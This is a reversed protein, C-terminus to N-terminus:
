YHSISNLFNSRIFEPDKQHSQQDQNMIPYIKGSFYLFSFYSFSLPPRSILFFPSISPNQFLLAYFSCFISFFPSLFFLRRHLCCPTCGASLSISFPLCPYSLVPLLLRRGRAGGNSCGGSSLRSLRCRRAHGESHKRLERGDPSGGNSVPRMGPYQQNRIECYNGEGFGLRGAPLEKMASDM